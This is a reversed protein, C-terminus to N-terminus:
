LRPGFIQLAIFVGLFCVHFYFGFMGGRPNMSQLSSWIPERRFMRRSSSGIDRHEWFIWSEHSVLVTNPSRRAHDPGGVHALMPFMSFVMLLPWKLCSDLSWFSHSWNSAFQVKLQVRRWILFFVKEQPVILTDLPKPNLIFIHL